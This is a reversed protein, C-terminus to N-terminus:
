YLTVSGNLPQLYWSNTGIPILQVKQGQTLTAGGSGTTTAFSTGSQMSYGSPVSVVVGGTGTVLVTIIKTGDASFGSTAPLTVTYQTASTAIYDSNLFLTFNSSIGLASRGTLGQWTPVGGSVTLVQGEGGIGLRTPVGSAGGRIIDGTTTMPNNASVANAVFATSAIQTTNTGPTATPVTPTGTFAPSASYVLSGTGTSADGNTLVKRWSQWVSNEQTRMYFADNRMALQGKYGTTSHNMSLVVPASGTPANTNTTVIQNVTVANADNGTGSPFIWDTIGYGSLTTPKSTIESWAPVYSIPRYAANNQALTPYQNWAAAASRIYLYNDTTNFYIRGGVDLGSGFSPSSTFRPIYLYDSVYTGWDKFVNQSIRGNISTQGFCTASASLLLITILKRM